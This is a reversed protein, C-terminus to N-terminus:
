IGHYPIAFLYGELVSGVKENTNYILRGVTDGNPYYGRSTIVM